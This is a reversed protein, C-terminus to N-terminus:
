IYKLILYFSNYRVMNSVQVKNRFQGKKGATKKLHNSYQTLFLLDM